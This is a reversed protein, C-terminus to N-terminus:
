NKWDEENSRLVRTSLFSIGVLIDPRIRKALFMCKMVFTYFTERKDKDLLQSEDNMNYLRTNWPCDIEESLNEPFTEVIEKIYQNM